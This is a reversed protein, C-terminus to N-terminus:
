RRETLHPDCHRTNAHTVHLLYLEEDRLVFYYAGARSEDEDPSGLVVLLSSDNRYRFGWADSLTGPLFDDAYLHTGAVTAFEKATIVKGTKLNLVAFMACSAGCGWYALRYHGAFNPKESIQERLVTRYTNAIPNSKLDFNAIQFAEPTPTSYAGFAPAKADALDAAV